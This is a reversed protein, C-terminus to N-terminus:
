ARGRKPVEQAARSEGSSRREAEAIAAIIRKEDLRSIFDAPKMNSQNTFPDHFTNIARNLEGVAAQVVAARAAAGALFAAVDEAVVVEM